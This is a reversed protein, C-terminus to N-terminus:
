SINNQAIIGTVTSTAPTLAKSSTNGTVYVKQAVSGSVVAQPVSEFINNCIYSSEESASLIAIRYLTKGRVINNMFKVAYGYFGTLSETLINFTCNTVEINKGPITSINKDTTIDCGNLKLSSEATIKFLYGRSSNVLKLKSNNIEISEVNNETIVFDSIDSNNVIINGGKATAVCGLICNNIIPAVSSCSSIQRSIISNNVETKLSNYIMATELNCNSVIVEGSKATVCISFNETDHIYCNNIIVKKVPNTDYNAEIDIGCQPAIGKINYIECNNVVVNHAAIISAGQRRSDHLKCNEILVNKSYTDKGYNDATVCISDGFGYGIDCNKITVNKANQLYVAHGYESSTAGTHTEKDGYIHGGEVIVNEAHYINLVRYYLYDNTISKLYANPSLILHKNSGVKIGGMESGKMTGKPDSNPNVMYVGEPFYITNGSEIAQNIADTDDTVGDGMAGFEKVNVVGATLMTNIVDGIIKDLEGSEDMDLLLCRISNSLNDKLYRCLEAIKGDHLLLKAETTKSLEEVEKILKKVFIKLENTDSPINCGETCNLINNM